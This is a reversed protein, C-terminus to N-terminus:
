WYIIKKHYVAARVGNEHRGLVECVKVFHDQCVHGCTCM